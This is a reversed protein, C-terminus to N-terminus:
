RSNSGPTKYERAFEGSEARTKFKQIGDDTVYPRGAVNIVELWGLKRWRWGTVRSRGMDSLFKSLSVVPAQITRNSQALIRKMPEVIGFRM